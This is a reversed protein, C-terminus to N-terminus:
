TEGEHVNKNMEDKNASEWTGAEFIPVFLKCYNFKFCGWTKVGHTSDFLSDNEDVPKSM